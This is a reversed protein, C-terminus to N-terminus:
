LFRFIHSYLCRKAASNHGCHHRCRRQRRRHTGICLSGFQLIVPAHAVRQRHIVDAGTDRIRLQHVMVLRQYYPKHLNVQGILVIAHLLRRATHRHRIRLTPRHWRKLRLQRLGSMIHAHSPVMIEKRVIIANGNAQIDMVALRIVRFEAARRQSEIVLFMGLHEAGADVRIDHNAFLLRIDIEEIARSHRVPATTHQIIHEISRRQGLGTAIDGQLRDIFPRYITRLTRSAAHRRNRVLRYLRTRVRIHQIEAVLFQVRQVVSSHAIDGSHVLSKISRQPADDGLIDHLSKVAVHAYNMVSHQMLALIVIKLVPAAVGVAARVLQRRAGHGADILFAITQIHSDVLGTRAFTFSYVADLHGCEEHLM